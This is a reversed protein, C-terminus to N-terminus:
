RTHASMRRELEDKPVDEIHTSIWWTVGSPDQVGGSRDGYFQNTMEQVSRAGSKLAAQYVADADEMYLLISGPIPQWPGGAQGMMVHSNGITVDAHMLTGDPRRFEENIRANFAEQVFRLLADADKVILYPTATGYGEPVPKVAM